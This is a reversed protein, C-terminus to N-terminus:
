SSEKLIRQAVEELFMFVVSVGFCLLRLNIYVVWGSAVTTFEFEVWGGSYYLFLNHTPVWVKMFIQVRIKQHIPITMGEERTRAGILDVMDAIFVSKFM